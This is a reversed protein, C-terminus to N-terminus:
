LNDWTAKAEEATVESSLKKLKRRVEYLSRNPSLELLCYIVLRPVNCTKAIDGYTYGAVALYQIEQLTRVPINM